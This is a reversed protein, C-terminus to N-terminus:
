LQTVPRVCGLFVMHRVSYLPKIISDIGSKSTSRYKESNMQVVASRYHLRYCCCCAYVPGEAIKSLFKAASEEVTLHKNIGGRSEYDESTEQSRNKAMHERNRQQRIERDESTERARKMTM